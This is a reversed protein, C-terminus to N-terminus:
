FADFRSATSPRGVTTAWMKSSKGMTAAGRHTVDSYVEAKERDGTFYEGPGPGTPRLRGSSRKSGGISYRPYAHQVFSPSYAGPGPGSGGRQSADHLRSRGVVKGFSVTTARHKTAILGNASAYTAPGPTNAGQM